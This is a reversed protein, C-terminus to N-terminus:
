HSGRALLANAILQTLSLAPMEFACHVGGFMGPAGAHCFTTLAVAAETGHEPQIIAAQIRYGAESWM